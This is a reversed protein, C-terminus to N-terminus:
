ERLDRLLHAQNDGIGLLGFAERFAALSRNLPTQSVLDEPCLDCSDAIVFRALGGLRWFSREWLDLLM